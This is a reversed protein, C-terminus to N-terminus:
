HCSQSSHPAPTCKQRLLVTYIENSMERERVNKSDKRSM